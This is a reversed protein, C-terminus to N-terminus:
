ATGSQGGGGRELFRTFLAIDEAALQPFALFEIYTIVSVGLWEAQKTLELLGPHGRLLSVVANTDLLYRKSAGNM